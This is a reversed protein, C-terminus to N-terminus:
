MMHTTVEYSAAILQEPSHWMKPSARLTAHDARTGHNPSKVLWAEHPSHDFTGYLLRSDSPV